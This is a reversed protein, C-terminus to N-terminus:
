TQAYQGRYNYVGHYLIGLTGYEIIVSTDGNMCREALKIRGLFMCSVIHPKDHEASGLQIIELDFILQKDRRYKLLLLFIHGVFEGCNSGGFSQFATESFRLILIDVFCM